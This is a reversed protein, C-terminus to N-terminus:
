LFSVVSFATIPNSTPNIDVKVAKDEDKYDLPVVTPGLVTITKNHAVLLHGLTSLNFIHDKYM